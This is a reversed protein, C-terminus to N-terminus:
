LFGLVLPIVLHVIALSVGGGVILRIGYFEQRLAVLILGILIMGVGIVDVIPTLFDVIQVIINKAAEALQDGISSFDQMLGYGAM